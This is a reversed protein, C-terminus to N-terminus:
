GPSKVPDSSRPYTREEEITGDAKHIKLSGTHQRVYERARDVAEEKTRYSGLFAGEEEALTWTEGEPTVHYNQM